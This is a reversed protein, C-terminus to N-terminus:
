VSGLKFDCNAICIGFAQTISLPWQVDMTYVAVDQEDIVRGFQLIINEPDNNSILQFNKASTQTVRPGFNLAYGDGNERLKPSKSSLSLQKDKESPVNMAVKSSSIRLSTNIAQTNWLDDMKNLSAEYENKSSQARQPSSISVNIKKPLNNTRNASFSIKAILDKKKSSNEDEICSHLEYGLGLFSGELKAVYDKSKISHWGLSLGISSGAVISTNSACMLFYDDDAEEISPYKTIYDPITPSQMYLDYFHLRKNKSNKMVKVYCRLIGADKPLPRSVFDERYSRETLLLDKSIISRPWPFSKFSIDSRCLPCSAKGKQSNIWNILCRSHICNTSNSCKMSCPLSIKQSPSEFEDLCIFCIDQDM